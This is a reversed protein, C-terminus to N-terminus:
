LHRLVPHLRSRGRPRPLGPPDGARRHGPDLGPGPAPPAADRGHVGLDVSINLVRAGEPYDMGLFFIDSWGSHSLDMRVATSEGLVPFLGTAPDAELLEPRFRLPYDRAAGLRFMWRNGDVMRVCTQVQLALVQFGHGAYATALVSALADDPLGGACLGRVRNLADVYRTDRVLGVVDFPIVGARSHFAEVAAWVDVATAAAAFDELLGTRDEPRPSDLAAGLDALTPARM